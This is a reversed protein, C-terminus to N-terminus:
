TLIKGKCVDCQDESTTPQDTSFRCCEECAFWVKRHKMNSSLDSLVETHCNALIQKSKKQKPCQRKKKQKQKRKKHNEAMAKMEEETFDKMYNWMDGRFLTTIRKAYRKREERTFERFKIEDLETITAGLRKLVEVLQNWYKEFVPTPIACEVVHAYLLNRMIRMRKLDSAQDLQNDDPELPSNWGGPPAERLVLIGCILILLTLDFNDLSVTDPEDPFLLKFQEYSLPKANFQRAVVSPKLTKRKKGKAYPGHSSSVDNFDRKCKSELKKRNNKLFVELELDKEHLFDQVIKRVWVTGEDILLISFRVWNEEEKTLPVDSAGEQLRYSYEQKANIYNQLTHSCLSM